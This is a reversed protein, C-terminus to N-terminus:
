VVVLDKLGQFKKPGVGEVELLQRVSTFRGQRERRAIIRQALVPGVGPLQELQAQSATNLNVRGGPGPEAAPLAEGPKPVLIKQGDALPEALNVAGLDAGEVPGGAAAVADRVRSGASLEYVGPAAVMGAVHVVLPAGPPSPDAAPAAVQRVVPVPPASARSYLVASGAILAAGLLVILGVEAPSARAVDAIRALFGRANM